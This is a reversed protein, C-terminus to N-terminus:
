ELLPKSNGLYIRVVMFLRRSIYDDVLFLLIVIYVFYFSDKYKSEFLVKLYLNSHEQVSISITAM